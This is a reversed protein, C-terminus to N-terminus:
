SVSPTKTKKNLRSRVVGGGNEEEEEQQLPSVCVCAVQPEREVEPDERRKVYFISLPQEAQAKALSSFFVVLHSV